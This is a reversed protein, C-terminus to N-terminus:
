DILAPAAHDLEPRSAVGEDGPSADSGASEATHAGQHADRVAWFLRELLQRTFHDSEFDSETVRERLMVAGTRGLVPSDTTVIIQPM